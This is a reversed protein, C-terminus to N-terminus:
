RARGVWGKEVVLFEDNAVVYRIAQMLLSRVDDYFSEAVERAPELQLVNAEIQLSGAEVNTPFRSQLILTGSDDSLLAAERFRRDERLTRGIVGTGQIGRLFDAERVKWLRSSGAETWTRLLGGAYLSLMAATAPDGARLPFDEM